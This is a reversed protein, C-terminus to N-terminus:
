AALMEAEREPDSERDDPTPPPERWADKNPTVMAPGARARSPHGLPRLRGAQFPIVSLDTPEFGVGEAM